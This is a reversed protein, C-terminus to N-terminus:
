RSTEPQPTLTLGQGRIVGPEGTGAEVAHAEKARGLRGIGLVSRGFSEQLTLASATYWACFSAAIFVWGAAVQLGGQIGTMWVIAEITSGAALCACVLTMMVSEGAAAWTLMWTIAALIIFYFGAEPFTGGPVPLKGGVFEIMLVGFAIYFAGWVGHLATALGDRAKFAWMGALFQAIGGLIAVFPWLYVATIGPRGYWGAAHAALMFTAGALAYLGLISPAAVPQLYIRAPAADNNTEYYPM